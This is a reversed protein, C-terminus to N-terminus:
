RRRGASQSVFDGLAQKDSETKALAGLCALFRDAQAAAPQSWDVKCRQLSQIWDLLESTSPKKEVASLDRLFFYADLADQYGQGDLAVVGKLREDLIDQLAKRRAGEDAPFEIHHYVCRRLFADPLQKESNSTIVIVPSFAPDARLCQVGLEPIAFELNEIQNLLDNPFDRPAKDIEDILVVASTPDIPVPQSGAADDDPHTRPRVHHTKDWGLSRLIAEGLASYRIYDRAEVAKDAGEKGSLAALQSAAFHAVNDFQYFLETAVSSSKTNFRLPEGLGLEAALRYALQTKGTGPEGTLLLPRGIVLAVNVANALGKSAIYGAPSTMASALRPDPPTRKVVEIASRGKFVDFTM